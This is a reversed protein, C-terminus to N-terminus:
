SNFKLRYNYIILTLINLPSVWDILIIIMKLLNFAHKAKWSECNGFGYFAKGLSGFTAFKHNMMKCSCACSPRNLINMWGSNYMVVLRARYKRKGQFHFILGAKRNWILSLFFAHADNSWRRISNLTGFLPPFFCTIPEGAVNLDISSGFGRAPPCDFRFLRTLYLSLQFTPRLRETLLWSRALVIPQRLPLNRPSELTTTEFFYNRHFISTEMM